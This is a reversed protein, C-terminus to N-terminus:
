SSGVKSMVWWKMMVYTLITVGCLMIANAVPISLDFLTVGIQVVAGGLLANFALLLLYRLLSSRLERKSQFTFHRHGIFNTAAAIMYSLMSVFGPQLDTTSTFLLTSAAYTGLTALGVTGYIVLQRM